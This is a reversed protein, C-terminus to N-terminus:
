ILILLLVADSVNGTRGRRGRCLIVSLTKDCYLVVMLVGCVFCIYLVFLVCYLVVMLVGRFVFKCHLCFVHNVSM